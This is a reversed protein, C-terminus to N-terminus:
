KKRFELNFWTREVDVKVLEHEKYTYYNVKGDPLYLKYRHGEQAELRCYQLFRESYVEQIGKPEQFYLKATSFRLETNNLIYNKQPFQFVHYNNREQNLSTSDELNNNM